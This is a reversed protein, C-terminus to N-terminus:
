GLTFYFTAGKGPKGEAWIRGSHRRIIREVTALGIGFGKFQEPGHLRQFPIFLMASDEEDFGAGNDRVFYAPKGDVETLCFDIVAEERMGTYKWANGILNGLVIRLLKPDCEAKIGAAIRFTGRREPSTLQLEDAVERAVASLDVTERRPEVHSLKSFALLVDILQSMRQVNEYGGTLYGKCTEDLKAGYLRQITQFYLGMSNLPGRLDHAVTYNFAELDQNAAELEAARAALDTNLKEIKEEARKRETIDNVLSLLCPEGRLDIREASYLGVLIKGNKDRFNIEQDRVRGEDRLMKLMKLM